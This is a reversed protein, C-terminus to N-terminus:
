KRGVFIVEPELEVGKNERVTNKILEMLNLIDDTTAGNKNIVFGAHKQSVEAGGVSKGKLGCEEILAGAFNGEPRKFTSGASPYELPQKDRRKGMLENMKNLIETKDGKKLKFSVRTIVNRNQKFCSTRYGLAMDSKEIVGADGEPTIFQASTVVDAMEGGYAGANMFLGGGVTGPIGYAFELGHLGEKAVAVCLATLSAGAGATVNEGEIKIESLGSLSIVAGEIGKDSVLLNSGKGLIFVPVQLAKATELLASLSHTDGAEIFIDANGGTKFGTHNKMPENLKFSLGLDKCFKAFVSYDM